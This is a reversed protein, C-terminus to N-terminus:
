GEVGCWDAAFYTVAKLCEVLQSIDVYEDPGHVGGEVGKPRAPGFMICPAKGYRSLFGMDSMGNCGLAVDRGTARRFADSFCAVLPHSTEIEAPLVLRSMWEVRCTGGEVGQIAQEFRRKFAAPDDDHLLYFWVRAAGHIADDCGLRINVLRVCMGPFSTKGFLPHRRFRDEREKKLAEVAARIRQFYDCLPLADAAPSNLRFDLLAYGGGLGAVALDEHLGDTNLIADATYGKAVLAV